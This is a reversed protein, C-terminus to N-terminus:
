VRGLWAGSQLLKFIHDRILQVVVKTAPANVRQPAHVLILERSIVPDIIKQVVLEGTDLEAQVATVPLITRITGSAVLGRITPLTELEMAISLHVQARACAEDVLIRLGHPLGPLALDEGELMGLSVTAGQGLPPAHRASVLFMDEFLLHEADPFTGARLKYLVALDVRGSALWEAVHGSFGELVRMQIGPYDTRIQSLLPSLLVLGVSPPVGLTVVGHLTTNTAGIEVRIQAVDALVRRARTLFTEGIETVIVGRGNRYFLTVGLELELDRIRRSLASQAINHAMAAKSFSGTEAIAVFYQFDRLDM